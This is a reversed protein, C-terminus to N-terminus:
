PACSRRAPRHPLSAPAFLGFWTVVNFGQVEENITPVNPLSEDPGLSTVGLAKLEGSRILALSSALNDFVLAVERAQLAKLASWSLFASNVDVHFYIKPM